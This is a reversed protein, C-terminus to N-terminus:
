GRVVDIALVGMLVPGDIEIWDAYVYIHKRENKKSMM